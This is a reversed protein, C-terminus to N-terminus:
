FLLEFLKWFGFVMICCSVAGVIGIIVFDYWKAKEEVNMRSQSHIEFFKRAGAGQGKSAEDIDSAGSLGQKRQVFPLVASADDGADLQKDKETKDPSTGSNPPPRKM